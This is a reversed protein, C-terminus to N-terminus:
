GAEHSDRDDDLPVTRQQDVWDAESVPNSASSLPAPGEEHDGPDVPIAQELFDADPVEPNTEQPELNM